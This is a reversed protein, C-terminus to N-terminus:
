ILKRAWAAMAPSLSTETLGYELVARTRDQSLGMNRFYADMDSTAGTWESSTHGEIRVEELDDHFEYLIRLYAPFLEILIAKFAPKPEASGKDFLAGEKQFRLTLNAPDLETGWGSLKSGFTSSLSQNIKQETER